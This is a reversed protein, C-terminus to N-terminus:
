ANHMDNVFQRFTNWNNDQMLTDGLRLFTFKKLGKSVWERIRGFAEKDYCELANEGEFDLGAWGCDNIIQQVLYAPNSGAGSDPTLELCTFCCEIDFQKFSTLIDRYGDYFQFNRLGATIEACHCPVMYWWHIGAIKSSLRTNGFVNRAKEFVKKGHDILVKAYWNAFWQGYDSRWGDGSGENWFQTSGPKANYDGVNYPNHGFGSKGEAAADKSLKESLKDDYSQFAGCGPYTWYKMQYSPYRLEGCPGVGVEIEIIDGSSIFSQFENKFAEMFDEYMKIPTRGNISTEDYGFSIYEDDINGYQDKFFPHEPSDRVFSPIPIDCKDGVNGGCKHFSM